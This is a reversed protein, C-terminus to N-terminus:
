CPAGRRVRATRWHLIGGQTMWAQNLTLEEGLYRGRKRKGGSDHGLREEILRDEVGGVVVWTAVPSQYVPLRGPVDLSLPAIATIDCGNRSGPLLPPLRLFARLE